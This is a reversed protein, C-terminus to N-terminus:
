GGWARRVTGSEDVLLRVRNPALEATVVSGQPIAQPDFGEARVRETAEDVPLGVLTVALANGAEIRERDGAPSVDV